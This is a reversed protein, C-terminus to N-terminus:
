IVPINSRIRDIQIQNPESCCFWSESLKPTQKYDYGNTSLLKVNSFEEILTAM